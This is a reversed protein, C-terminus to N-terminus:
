VSEKLEKMQLAMSLIVKDTATWNNPGKNKIRKIETRADDHIQNRQNEANTPSDVYDAMLQEVLPGQGEDVYITLEGKGDASMQIDGTVGGDQLYNVVRDYSPSRPQGEPVNVVVESM